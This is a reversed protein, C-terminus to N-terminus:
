LNCHPPSSLVWEVAKPLYPNALAICEPGIYMTILIPGAIEVIGGVVTLMVTAKSHIQDPGEGTHNGVYSAMPKIVWSHQLNSALGQFVGLKPGIGTLWGGMGGLVMAPLTKHLQIKDTVFSFGDAGANLTRAILGNVTISSM